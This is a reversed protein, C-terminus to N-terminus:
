DPRDFCCGNDEVDDEFGRAFEGKDEESLGPYEIILDMDLWYVVPVDDVRDLEQLAFAQEKTLGAEAIRAAAMSVGWEFGDKYALTENTKDQTVM